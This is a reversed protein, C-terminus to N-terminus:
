NQMHLSITEPNSGMVLQDGLGLKFIKKKNDSM